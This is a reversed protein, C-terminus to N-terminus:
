GNSEIKNEKANRGAGRDLLELRIVSISSVIMIVAVPFKRIGHLGPFEALM